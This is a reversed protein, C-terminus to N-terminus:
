DVILDAALEMVSKLTLLHPASLNNPSLRMLENNAEHGHIYGKIEPSRSTGRAM